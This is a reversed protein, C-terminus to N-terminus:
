LDDEDEQLLWRKANNYKPKEQVMMKKKRLKNEAVPQEIAPQHDKKKIDKKKKLM